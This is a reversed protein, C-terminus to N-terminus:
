KDAEYEDPNFEIFTADTTDTIANQTEAALLFKKNGQNIETYAALEGPDIRCEGQLTTKRDAFQSYLTGILLNEPHDTVGARYMKQLQLNDSARYFIGKATPCVKNATGCITDISIEEKAEANIYGKYEVDDLEADDFVLNNKVIEIKPAKYLHWRVKDYLGKNTWQLTVGFGLDNGILSNKVDEGYDHCNIGAYVTVELYGGDTPYPMYEGDAMQKFSDYIYFSKASGFHATNIRASNDPRGICHRNAKWGLIGADDKMDKPDYYELWADGFSAEGSVWKGKAYALHGISASKAVESNDYHCIPNDNSDYITVGIPVFAWGTYAKFNKYNGDENGGNSADSFPNYRPDLLMELSLRIYYAKADAESLKPIFVKNTRMLVSENAKATKNLKQKPWGSNLDGHGGTRFGWAVGDCESPGGVMPVIHFYRASPNLYGLGSGSKSLFITFNILNYDWNTGQRHDASYDPYYSYYEGDGKAESTLNTKDTSYEGDYVIDGDLLEATSYPSFNIKANNYVKDTGMTSSDGDWEILKIDASNYLGNLDYIYIRGARQVMRLALPQLVGELAEKLTAAEGDEDFFNDSRVSITDINAKTTGDDFYTSTLTDYDIGGFNICTKELAYQAIEKITRMGSLDYKLRDLVGFDSFTLSVPYNAGREYPEEYFEPDLAGSWYLLNNRYVDMRIRGPAITYLDEYTRDGPSEIRLTATSGGIVEEKETHDWEIVLPEDAEFTLSGIKDFPADADQLIEVRWVIGTRSLFEGM